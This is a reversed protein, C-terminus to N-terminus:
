WRDTRARTRAARGLRLGAAPVVELIEGAGEGVFVISTTDRERLRQLTSLGDLGEVMRDLLKM